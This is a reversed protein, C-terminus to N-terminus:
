LHFMTHRRLTLTEGLISPHTVKSHSHDSISGCLHNLRRTKISLALLHNYLMWELPSSKLITQEQSDSDKYKIRLLFRKYRVKHHM